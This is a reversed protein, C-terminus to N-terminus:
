CQSVSGTCRETKSELRTVRIRRIGDLRDNRGPLLGAVLPTPKEGPTQDQCFGGAYAPYHCISYGEEPYRFTYLPKPSSNPKM